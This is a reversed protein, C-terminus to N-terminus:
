TTRTKPAASRDPHRDFRSVVEVHPTHPFLDVLTAEVLRYGHGALLGADRGLSAADCSVLVVRRAGTAAVREAGARGLGSRAPDAVVLDAPSPRWRAVDAKVITVEDLDALNVQADRIASATGEVAM